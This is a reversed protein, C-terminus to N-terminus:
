RQLAKVAEVLDKLPIFRRGVTVGGRERDIKLAGIEEPVPLSARERRDDLLLAQEAETRVHDRAFAQRVQRATMNLPDAQRVTRTGDPAYVLLPVLTGESFRRQDDLPLSGIVSVLSPRGSFRVVVEPLLQGGAIRKLHTMMGGLRLDSVDEGREELVHLLCACRLLDRATVEFARALSEKLEETTMAQFEALWAASEAPPSLPTLDSV